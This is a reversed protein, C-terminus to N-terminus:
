TVIIYVTNAAQIAPESNMKQGYKLDGSTTDLDNLSSSRKRKVKKKKLQKGASGKLRLQGGRVVSYESM